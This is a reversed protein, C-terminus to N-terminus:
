DRMALMQSRLRRLHGIFDLIPITPNENYVKMLAYTKTNNPFFFIVRSGEKQLHPTVGEYQLFASLNIDYIPIMSPIKKM